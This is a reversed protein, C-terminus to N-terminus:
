GADRPLIDQLTAVNDVREGRRLIQHSPLLSRLETIRQIDQQRSREKHSEVAGGVLEFKEVIERM